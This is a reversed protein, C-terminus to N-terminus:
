KTQILKKSPNLLQKNKFYYVHSKVIQSKELKKILSRRQAVVSKPTSPIYFTQNSTGNMENKPAAARHNGPVKKKVPLYKSIPTPYAREQTTPQKSQMFEPLQAQYAFERLGFKETNNVPKSKLQRMKALQLEVRRQAVNSIYPYKLQDRRIIDFYEM